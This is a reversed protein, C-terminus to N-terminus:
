EPKEFLEALTPLGEALTPHVHVSEDLVRWSAGNMIHALIVHILEGAEYGVFTAGVINDDARDIVLRFFGREVNWEIARAVSSLPLTAARADIGAAKASEETHGVRALQPETFTSYALVRDDRRRPKGALTSALRRYDEYSVHTFAPQGAVDGIAYVGPCSTQLHEDADVYGREGIRIGSRELALGGTNPARGTAILLGDAELTEGGELELRITGASQSVGAIRASLRVDVGDERLTELLLASADPEEREMVRDSSHVITVASGLRQAGQGLELGIYGGGIVLLRAPLTQLDFFTQNTLYSVGDLGSIKPIAATTGTDIVIAAAEFERGGGSVIREGSFSAEAHVLEVGADRLRKETSASWETRIRRLREFVARQDVRVEAHIGLPGARRARGANHAAALFSKSPTCGYNLCSGGYAGREFLVTRRGNRAFDTALPVGGQGSGIVILDVREM